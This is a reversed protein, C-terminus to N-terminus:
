SDPWVSTSSPSVRIL